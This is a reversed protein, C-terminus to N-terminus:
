PRGTPVTAIPRMSGCRQVASSISSNCASASSPATVISLARSDWAVARWSCCIRARSCIESRILM